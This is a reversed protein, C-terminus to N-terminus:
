GALGLAGCGDVGDEGAVQARDAGDVEGVAERRGLFPLEGPPGRRRAAPPTRSRTKRLRIAAIFRSGRGASM